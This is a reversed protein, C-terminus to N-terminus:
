ERHETMWERALRQADAIQEPTMYEAVANRYQLAEVNGQAAALNFWKHALVYDQSVHEGAAYLSGLTFQSLAFGGNAAESLWHVASENNQLVGLGHAYMTALHHQAAPFDQTASKTYWKVAEEYDQIVGWGQQHAIGLAMQAVASGQEAREYFREIQQPDDLDQQPLAFDQAIVPVAIWFLLITMFIRM